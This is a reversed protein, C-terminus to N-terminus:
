SEDKVECVPTVVKDIAAFLRKIEGPLRRDDPLTAIIGAWHPSLKTKWSIMYQLLEPDTWRNIEQIKAQEHQENAFSPRQFEIVAQKLEAQYGEHILYQEINRGDPLVVVHDHLMALELAELATSVDGITSAEGDSFIFWPIAMSEAVRLFPLYNGGGGVGVLVVGRMFPAEGWHVNAFTPLAQEETEGEFLVIAQAFLLEGRTNMVERGIKRIDDPSLAELNLATVVAKAGSKHFHRIDALDAQAAIYPSHTSIIKQGISNQLQDYVCRQANPHLHAEPEELALIPHYPKGIDKAAQKDLWSVYAQYTLLSAWSRTGMGHCGLSFSSANSDSFQVDLGKTIDRLKKSVPTIEVGKGYSPVTRNLEGLSDRMHSLLESHAVIDANLAGLRDEIEKVAEPPIEVKTLLRGIYSTRNRLDGVVDRQADMLFAVIQEWRLRLRQKEPTDLWDDGERWDNLVFRQVVFDNRLPDFTVRTRVGVYQRDNMDFNVLGGGLETNIWGDDFEDIREGKPGTPIIRLDIVITHEPNDAHGARTGIHFDDASVVRRDAGLALHLAKLFSTKGSNNMGVLVTVPSLAVEVNRLARFNSIRVRDVLIGM